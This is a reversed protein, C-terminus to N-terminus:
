FDDVDQVPRTMRYGEGFWRGLDVLRCRSSCFPFTDADADVTERCVPCRGTRPPRVLTAPDIRDALTEPVDIVITRSDVDDHALELTVRQAPLRAGFREAWEVAIVTDPAELLEDWGLTELEDDGTIRYGDLHALALGVSGRAYEQCLVFTPSSVSHPDLGLGEALNRAYRFSIFADDCLFDLRAALLSYALAALAFAKWVAGPAHEPARTAAGRAPAGIM